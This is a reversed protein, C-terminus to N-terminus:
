SAAEISIFGKATDWSLDDTQGGSDLFTKVDMGTQYLAFRAHAMTGARKPNGESLVTIRSDLPFSRRTPREAQQMPESRLLRVVDDYPETVAYGGGDTFMVRTGPRNNRRPYFCRIAEVNITVLTTQPTSAGEGEENDNYFDAGRDSIIKNLEIYQM